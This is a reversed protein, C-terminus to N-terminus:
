QWVASVVPNTKQTSSVIFGISQDQGQPAIKRNWTTPIITVYNTKSTISGNWKDSVQVAYKFKVRLKWNSINYKSKNRITLRYITYYRKGSQWNGDKKLSVTCYKSSARVSKPNSPTGPAAPATTNGGPLKGKMQKVVYTGSKSLDSATWGSTKKCSSKLLSSTENKNSLNWAMYSIQYRNLLTFWKDAETQNISGSGSADCIGYESVFVPLGAKVASELKKRYSEKHTAAYFHFTYMLNRYGKIPNKAATDVDQSWTPTGILIVANRDIARIEKIVAEAYSKVQNWSTGGNPENCIEYIVNKQNKYKKAMEKFFAIAEKKHKNPNQDSLVHWDIIVYMGLDTAAQVGEQVKKKLASKNGNSCYGGYEETYMALRVTNAGWNDRLSKFANKNVYGPFWAIGHTSVGKLQFNKGKADVLHSGKVSLAGHESVPTAGVPVGFLLVLLLAAIIQLGFRRKNKM